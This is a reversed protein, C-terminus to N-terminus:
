IFNVLMPINRVKCLQGTLYICILSKEGFVSDQTLNNYNRFNLFLLDIFIQYKVL